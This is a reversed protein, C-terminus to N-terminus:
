PMLPDDGALDKAVEVGEYKNVADLASSASPASSM